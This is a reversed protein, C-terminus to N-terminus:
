NDKRAYFDEALKLNRKHWAVKRALRQLEAVTEALVTLEMSDGEESFTFTFHKTQQELVFVTGGFLEEYTKLADRYSRLVHEAIQAENTPAFDTSM